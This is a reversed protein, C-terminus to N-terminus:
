KKIFSPLLPRDWSFAPTLPPGIKTGYVMARKSEIIGELVHLNQDAAFLVGAVAHNWTDGLFLPCPGRGLGCVQRIIAPVSSQFTLLLLCITILKIERLGLRLKDLIVLLPGQKIPLKGKLSSVPRVGKLKELGIVTTEEINIQAPIQNPNRTPGVRSVNANNPLLGM